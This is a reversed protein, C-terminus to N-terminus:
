QSQIVRILFVCVICDTKPINKNEYRFRLITERQTRTIIKRYKKNTCKYILLARSDARHAGRFEFEIFRKVKKVRSFVGRRKPSGNMRIECRFRDSKGRNM